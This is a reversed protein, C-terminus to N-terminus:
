TEEEEPEPVVYESIIEAAESVTARPLDAWAPVGDAGVTLVQGETGIGLRVSGGNANIYILDGAATNEPKGLKKGVADDIYKQTNGEYKAWIEACEWSSIIKHPSSVRMEPITIAIEEPEALEYVVQAGTTPRTGGRYSEHSSWWRRNLTEGAYSAISRHTVRLVGSGGPTGEVECGYIGSNSGAFAWPDNGSATLKPASASMETIPCINSYPEWNEYDHDWGNLIMPNLKGSLTTYQTKVVAYIDIVTSASYLTFTDSSKGYAEAITSGAVLVLGVAENAINTTLNYSGAPLTIYGLDIRRGVYSPSTLRGSVSINGDTGKTFRVGYNSASHYSTPNLLNRGKGPGWPNYYGGLPQRPLVKVRIGHLAAFDIADTLTLTTLNEGATETDVPSAIPPLRDGPVIGEADLEAIGNPQGKSSSLSSLGQQMETHAITSDVLYTLLNIDGTDAQISNNGLITMVQSATFTFTKKSADTLWAVIQLPHQGLWAELDSVTLSNDMAYRVLIDQNNVISVGVSWMNYDINAVLMENCLPKIVSSNVFRETGKYTNSFYNYEGTNMSANLAWGEPVLSGDIWKWQGDYNLIMRDVFLRASGDQFITLEGGYVTGAETPFTIPYVVPNEGGSITVNCGAWGTINRVNSTSPSGSGAQVPEIAIRLEKVPLGDAGDGFTMVGAPVSLTKYIAEAKRDVVRSTKDASWVLDTDGVGADDDISESGSAGMQLNFDLVPDEPTGRMTISSPTGHPVDTVTGISFNPTAGTNGRTLGFHINKHGDVETMTATPTSGPQLEESSVSMAMIKDAAEEAADKAEGAAVADDHVTEIVNDAAEDIAEATHQAYYKANNHYAPDTTPVDIGERTGVAFAESDKKSQAANNKHTNAAQASAEARQAVDMYSKMLEAFEDETGTYGKSKAYGYATAIGLNTAM